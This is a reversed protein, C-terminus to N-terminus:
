LSPQVSLLYPFPSLLDFILSCFDFNCPRQAVAYTYFLLSFLDSLSQSFPNKFSIKSIPTTPKCNPKIPNKKTLMFVIENEYDKTLLFTTKMKDNRFNAKNQMISEYGCLCQPVFSCLSLVFRLFRKCTRAPRNKHTVATQSSKLKQLWSLVELSALIFEFDSYRFGFCDRFGFSV